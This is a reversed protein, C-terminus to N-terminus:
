NEFLSTYLENLNEGTTGDVIETRGIARGIIFDSAGPNVDPPSPWYSNLRPRVRRPVEKNTPPAVPKITEGMFVLDVSSVFEDEEEQEEEEQPVIPLPAPPPVPLPSPAACVAVSAVSAVSPMYAALAYKSPCHGVPLRKQHSISVKEAVKLAILLRDQSGDTYTQQIANIYGVRKLFLSDASVPLGIKYIEYCPWRDPYLILKIAKLLTTGIGLCDAATIFPIDLFCMLLDSTLDYSWNYSAITVHGVGYKVSVRGLSERTLDFTHIGALEALQTLRLVRTANANRKGPKTFPPM